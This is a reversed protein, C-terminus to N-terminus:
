TNWHQELSELYFFEVLFRRKTLKRDLSVPLNAQDWVRVLSVGCAVCISKGSHAEIRTEFSQDGKAMIKMGMSIVSSEPRNRSVTRLAM